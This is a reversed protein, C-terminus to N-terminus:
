KQRLFRNYFWKTVPKPVIRVFGRVVVASCFEFGNIYGIGFGKAFCKVENSFYSFGHRRSILDNGMRQLVGIEQINYFKMGEKLMRMWLYYDELYKMPKYNGAQLAKSRRFMVTPHNIPNRRKSLKYIDEPKEPLKRCQLVVTPDNDFEAINFGVLDLEPHNQLMNYQKEFRFSMCIDDTDMRAVLENTCHELGLALSVGLGSNKELAFVKFIDSYQAQYRSLVEDLGPTLPGDKVLVVESPALTQEFVSKLSADLFFPNEKNYISLLVSFM